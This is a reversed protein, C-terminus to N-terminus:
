RRGRAREAREGTASPYFNTGFTGMDARFWCSGLVDRMFLSLFRGISTNAQNGLLVGWRRYNFGLQDIIPGNLTILPSWGATSGAHELGYHPDTVADAIALLIPMYEPRCRGHGRECCGVVGYSRAQVAARDRHSGRTRSRHLRPLARGQRADAARDATRREWSRAQFLSNVEEFSGRFVIERQSRTREEPAGAEQEPAQTLAAVIRDLLVEEINKRMMTADHTELAGPYEALPLDPLGEGRGTARASAEFGTCILTVSPIGAKEAALAARSGAPTCTRM